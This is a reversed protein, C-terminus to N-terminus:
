RFGPLVESKRCAGHFDRVPTPGSQLPGPVTRRSRRLGRGAISPESGQWGDPRSWGPGRLGGKPIDSCRRPPFRRPLGSSGPDQRASGTSARADQAGQDESQKGEWHFSRRTPKKGSMRNPPVAEGREARHKRVIKRMPSGRPGLWRWSHGSLPLSAMMM